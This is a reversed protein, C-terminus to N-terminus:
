RSRLQGGGGAVDGGARSQPPWGYGGGASLVTLSAQLTQVIQKIFDAPYAGAETCRTVSVGPRCGKLPVHRHNSSIGPCVRHLLHALPGHSPFVVRMYHRYFASPEDPPGLGFACMPFVASAVDPRKLIAQWSPLDWMKPYRGSPGSSEALPFAGNDLAKVFLEAAFDAFVNGEVEKELIPGRGGGQPQAFTRAGGNQLQWDCFTTCPSAIWFVNEPGSVARRLHLGRVLPDTINHQPQYGVRNHPDAFVEVPPSAEGGQSVWEKTVGATRAFIERLLLKPAGDAARVARQHTTSGAVGSGCMNAYSTAVAALTSHQRILGSGLSTEGARRPPRCLRCAVRGPASVPQDHRAHWYFNFGLVPTSQREEVALWAMGDFDAPPQLLVMHGKWILTWVIWGGDEWDPGVITEVLLNGQFDARMVVVKAAGLEMIPFVALSRFDREHAPHLLDHLYVRLEHEIPTVFEAAEGMQTAADLALRAQDLRLERAKNEVEQLTPRRGKERWLIGAALTKTVCQRKEIVPEPMQLIGALEESMFVEEQYDWSRWSRGDVEVSGQGPEGTAWMTERVVLRTNEGARTGGQKELIIAAEEALDAVGYAVMEGMLEEFTVEEDAAVRASAWAYLDDSAEQLKGLVPGAALKEAKDVMNVAEEPAQFDQSPFYGRDQHRVPLGWSRDDRNVFDRVDEQKTYDIAEFEEPVENFHVTCTGGAKVEEAKEGGDDEKDAGAKRKPKSIKSAKDKQVGQRLAQIKDRASEATEQKMRRLGGRRLLQMQVAPDLAEFSGKLNEHARQCTTSHCGVHTLYGWCLLAGGKGVPARDRAKNVEEQTLKPGILNTSPKGGGRSDEEAEKEGGAHLGATQKKDGGWTLRWLAREQRREIRPELEMKFWGEPNLLDFTRPLELWARGEPGPLLAHFRIEALSMSERKAVKKLQRLVEKMEEMFRWHLEEWADMVIQLPWKHPLEQHWGALLDLAHERVELWEMGYTLAWVQNQRKVRAIWEDLRTPPAPRQEGQGKLHRAESAFADLEADTVQM